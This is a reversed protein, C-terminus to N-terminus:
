IFIASLILTCVCKKLDNEITKKPSLWPFHPCAQPSNSCFNRTIHNSKFCHPWTTNFDKKKLKKRARKTFNPCFHKAGGFIHRSSCRDNTCYDLKKLPIFYNLGLRFCREVIIIVLMHLSIMWLISTFFSMSDLSSKNITPM